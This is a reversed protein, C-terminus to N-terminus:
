ASLIERIVYELMDFGHFEAVKLLINLQRKFDDLPFDMQLPRSMETIGACFRISVQHTEPCRFDQILFTSSVQYVEQVLRGELSELDLSSFCQPCVLEWTRKEAVADVTAVGHDRLLDIDRCKTCFPCIVDRIVYSLSPDHFESAPDFERIELKTLINRRLAQVETELSDDLSYVHTIAKAFELAPNQLPLHSGGRKPFHRASDKGTGYVLALEDCVELMKKTIRGTVLEKMYDAVQRELVSTDELHEVVLRNDNNGNSDIAWADDDKSKLELWKRQYQIMFETVFFDFYQAAAEPLFTALNWELHLGEEHSDNVLSADVEHQFASAVLERADAVSHEDEDRDVGDDEDEFDDDLFALSDNKLKRQQRQTYKEFNKNAEEEQAQQLPIMEQNGDANDLEPVTAHNKETSSIMSDYDQDVLLGKSRDFTNDTDRQNPAVNPNTHPPVVSQIGGWNEKELWLLQEWIKTKRIQLFRFTDNAKITSLIFELYEEAADVAYKKTDIIIKGFNAFIVHTGLAKLEAIFKKFLKSMLGYVIRHLSADNMLSGGGFGCLYRYMNMLSVDAYIKKNSSEVSALWETIVSRLVNFAKLCCAESSAVTDCPIVGAETSDKISGFTGDIDDNDHQVKVNILELQTSSMIACIDIGFLDLEVSITRYAGPLNLTPEHLPDIWAAYDDEEAGGLDPLHGESAWLLHRSSELKRGFLVDTMTIIADVGLNSVPIQAFRSAEIRDHFWEPFYRYRQIMREAAFNQWYIAAPYEDDSSNPPMTILPFDNLQPLAKRWLTNETGCSGQTIVITPGKRERSYAVLKENCEQLAKEVTSVVSTIFKVQNRDDPDHRRYIRQLPPRTENSGVGNAFWVYAKSSHIFSGSSASLKEEDENNGDLIFLAVVGLGTSHARDVSNYIYIKRYAATSGSLYGQGDSHVMELDDLNFSKNYKNKDHRSVRTLCGMRLVARFWLPVKSEYVGEIFPDSMFITMAKEHHIFKKEPLTVEYLNFCQRDHPLSRKIRKGGLQLVVDDSGGAKYNIYITRPVVVTLRQLHGKSTMAWVIFEGPVDSLQLEIVQWTGYNAQLSANEILDSVGMPKKRAQPDFNEESSFGLPIEGRRNSNAYRRREKRNSRWVTKRHELWTNFSSIETGAPIPDNVDTPPLIPVVAAAPSISPENILPAVPSIPQLPKRIHSIVLGGPNMRQPVIMDEMDQVLPRSELEKTPMAFKISFDFDVAEGILKPGFLSTITTQRKGSEREEFSRRLWDPHTVRPCPNPVRQMGAPVSVIKQISRSLREKYYNWDVVDRFDSCDIYPDKLWKRLFFNRM